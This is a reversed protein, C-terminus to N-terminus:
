HGKPVEVKKKERGIKQNQILLSFLKQTDVRNLTFIM